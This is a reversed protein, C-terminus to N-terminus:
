RVIRPPIFQEGLPTDSVELSIVNRVKDRKPDVFYSAWKGLTWHALESQSAVDAGLKSRCGEVLRSSATGIVEVPTDVGVTRAVDPITMEKPPVTMDLGDASDIIIPETMATPDNLLWDVTLEEGRMHRFRNEEIPKTRLVKVWRGPDPELGAIHSRM